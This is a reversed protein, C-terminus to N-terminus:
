ANIYRFTIHVLLVHACFSYSGNSYFNLISQHIAIFSLLVALHLSPWVITLSNTPNKVNVFIYTFPDINM